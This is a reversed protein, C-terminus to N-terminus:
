RLGWNMRYSMRLSPMVLFHLQDMSNWWSTWTAQPLKSERVYSVFIGIYKIPYKKKLKPLMKQLKKIYIDVERQDMQLEM